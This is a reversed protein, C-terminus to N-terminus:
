LVSSTSRTTSRASSSGASSAPEGDVQHGPVRRGWSRRRVPRRTSTARRPRPRRRRPRPPGPAPRPAGRRRLLGSPLRSALNPEAFRGTRFATPARFGHPRQRRRRDQRRAAASGRGRCPERALQRALFRAEAEDGVSAVTARPQDRSTVPHVGPRGEDRAAGAAQPGEAFLPVPYRLATPLGDRLRLLQLLVAARM